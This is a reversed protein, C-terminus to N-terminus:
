LENQVAQALQQEQQYAGGYLHTDYANAFEKDGVADQVVRRVPDGPPRVVCMKKELLRLADYGHKILVELTDAHEQSKGSKFCCRHAPDFGDAHMKNGLPDVGAAMLLEMVETRGQFAAGHVPTYGEYEPIHPDAGRKLLVEAVGANGGLTAEMLPTRKQGSKGPARRDLDAGEELAKLAEKM